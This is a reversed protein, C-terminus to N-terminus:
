VAIRFAVLSHFVITRFNCTKMSSCLLFRCVSVFKSISLILHLVICKVKVSCPVQSNTSLQTWHELNLSWEIDRVSKLFNLYLLINRFCWAGSGPSVQACLSLMLTDLHEFSIEDPLPQGM